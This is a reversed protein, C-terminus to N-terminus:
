MSECPLSVFPSFSPLIKNVAKTVVDAQVDQGFPPPGNFAPWIMVISGSKDELHFNPTRISSMTSTVSVPLTTIVAGQRTFSGINSFAIFPRSTIPEPESGHPDIIVIHDPHVNAVRCRV